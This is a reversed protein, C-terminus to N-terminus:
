ESGEGILLGHTLLRTERESYYSFAVEGAGLANRSLGVTVVETWQAVLRCGM